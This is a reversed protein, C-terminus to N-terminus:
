GGKQRNRRIKYNKAKPNKALFIDSAYKPGMTHSSSPGHGIKYIKKISDMNSSVLSLQNNVLSLQNIM